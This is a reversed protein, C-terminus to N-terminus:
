VSMEDPVLTINSQNKHAEFALDILKDILEEYSIGSELIMNPYMSISTFGPITNVENVYIASNEDIFFDIRAMGVCDTARFVELAMSRIKQEIQKPINQAPVILEAGEPDLYKAEYSYFEHRPKIEAISSSIPENNGLVACEVERANISKEILAKSSYKFANALHQSFDSQNKSKEIGVSSGMCAPKIFLADADLKNCIDDFKPYTDNKNVVFFPVVPINHNDLLRKCFVKDMCVSSALVGPGVYPIMYIEFLGQITGDEGMPGHLAPFAVDIKIQDQNEFLLFAGNPKKILSCLKGDSYEGSVEKLGEPINDHNMWYWSGTRSIVVLIPQYKKRDIASIINRASIISIEHEASRGGFVILINKM